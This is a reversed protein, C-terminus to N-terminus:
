GKVGSGLNASTFHRQFFVFLVVAPLALVVAGALAVGFPNDQAVAADDTYNALSM